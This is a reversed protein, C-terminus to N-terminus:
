QSRVSHRHVPSEFVHRSVVGTVTTACPEGKVVSWIKPTLVLYVLAVTLLKNFYVGVVRHGAGVTLAVRRFHEAAAEDLVDARTRLINARPEPIDEELLRTKGDDDLLYLNM